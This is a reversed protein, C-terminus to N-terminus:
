ATLGGLLGAAQEALLVAGIGIMIVGSALTVVRAARPRARLIRRAAVAVLSYVVVTLLIHTAGMAATQAAVPVESGQVIFQPMVAVFLLLAKPNIGSTAVGRLYDRVAGGQRGVASSLAGGSPLAADERAAAGAFGAARWGRATTCGLWLLYLAGALSLWAVVDPRGALMVGLGAAVLATHLIYGSCLGAVSPVTSGPRLGAAITYAWDAGPTLTLALAVAAFGLLASLEM